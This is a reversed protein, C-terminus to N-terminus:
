LVLLLTGISHSLVPCPLAHGMFFLAHGMFFLAHGMFFLALFSKLYFIYKNM